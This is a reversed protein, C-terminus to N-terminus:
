EADGDLVQTSHDEQRRIKRLATWVGITIAITWMGLIMSIMAIM